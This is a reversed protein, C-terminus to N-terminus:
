VGNKRSLKLNFFQTVQSKLGGLVAHSLCLFSTQERLAYGLAAYFVSLPVLLLSLGAPSFCCHQIHRRQSDKSVVPVKRSYVVLYPEAPVFTLFIGSSKLRGKQWVHFVCLLRSVSQSTCRFNIM